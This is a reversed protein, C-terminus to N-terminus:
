GDVFGGTLGVGFGVNAGTCGTVDVVVVTLGDDVVVLEEVVVEVVVVLFGTVLSSKGASGVFFVAKTGVGTTVGLGVGEDGGVTFAHDLGSEGVGVGFPTDKIVLVALVLKGVWDVVGVM